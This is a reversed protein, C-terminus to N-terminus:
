STPELSQVESKTASIKVEQAVQGVRSVLLQKIDKHIYIAVELSVLAEIQTRAILIM